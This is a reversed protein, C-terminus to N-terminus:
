SAPVFCSEPTSGFIVSDIHSGSADVLFVRVQLTNTANVPSAVHTHDFREPGPGDQGVPYVELLAEDDHTMDVLVFRITQATPYNALDVSARVKYECNRMRYRATLDGGNPGAADVADTLSVCAVAIALVGVMLKKMMERAWREDTLRPRM